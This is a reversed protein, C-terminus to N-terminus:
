RCRDNVSRGFWDSTMAGVGQGQRKMVICMKVLEPPQTKDERPKVTVVKRKIKNNYKKQLETVSRHQHRGSHGAQVVRLAQGHGRPQAEGAVSQSGGSGTSIVGIPFARILFM